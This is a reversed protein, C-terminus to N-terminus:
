IGEKEKDEDTLEEAFGCKHCDYLYEEDSYKLISLNGWDCDPCKKKSKSTTPGGM